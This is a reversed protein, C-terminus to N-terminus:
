YLIAELVLKNVFYIGLRSYAAKTCRELIREEVVYDEFRAHTGARRRKSCGDRTMKLRKGRGSEGVEMSILTKPAVSPNM